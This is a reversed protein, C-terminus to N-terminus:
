EGDGDRLPVALLDLALRTLHGSGDKALRAKRCVACLGGWAQRLAERCVPAGCCSCVAPDHGGDGHAWRSEVEGPARHLCAAAETGGPRSVLSVDSVSSGDLNPKLMPKTEGTESTEAGPPTRSPVYRAWPDVFDGREYGKLTKEGVRIQHPRVGYPRLLRALSSKDLAKGRLDGWPGEEIGNLDAVLQASALREMGGEEFVARIDRLLRVGLSDDDREVGASLSVAAIRSREPWDGGAEDGIALLPEWGDAARDDLEAPVDPRAAELARYHAATWKDLRESIGNGEDEVERWRFRQVPEHPARRKLVIPIARDQVTDPLRGIGAIAKPSFVSFNRLAFDAGNKVCLSAVGGRRYGANLVARLAEAYEKEGKFAADTEDLLLTPMDADIKRVLVAASVRSTFWKRAVVVSLTELLRTKGSKKEASTVHLYPTTEAAKAAHTHAVWLAAAWAQVDTMVVYRRIFAAVEDLLGASDEVAPEYPRAADLLCRMAADDGPFDAADGKEPAESWSVVRAEIGIAALSEAIREMHRRGAADNDAWLYVEFGGLVGLSAANPTGDAGTVTGVAAIERRWLAETAKEGEAVVVEAHAALVGLRESGYLPLEDRALGGLGPNGDPQEWWVRKDGDRDERKHIAVLKGQADRIEYGTVAARSRPRRDAQPWLGRERLAAIVADQSCPPSGWCRVLLRGDDTDRVNLSPHRDDHAPCHSRYGKGDRRGCRCGSRGCSLAQAIGEATLGSRV